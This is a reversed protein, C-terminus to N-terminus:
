GASRSAFRHQGDPSPPATLVPKIKAIDEGAYAATIYASVPAGTVLQVNDKPTLPIQVKHVIAAHVYLERTAEVRSVLAAFKVTKTIFTTSNAIQISSLAPETKPNNIQSSSVFLSEIKEKIANFLMGILHGIKKVGFVFKICSYAGSFFTSLGIALKPVEKFIGMCKEKFLAYGVVGVIYMTYMAIAYSLAYKIINCAVRYGHELQNENNKAKFSNICDTIQQWEIDKAFDKLPFFFLATWLGFVFTSLGITVPLGFVLGAAYYTLAANCGGAILCLFSLGLLIGIQYRELYEYKGTTPDKVKFLRGLYIQKFLKSLDEQAFIYGYYAAGLFAIPM